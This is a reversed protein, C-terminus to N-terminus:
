GIAMLEDCDDCRVSLPKTARVSNGCCPCVYKISHAKTTKKQKKNLVRRSLSFKTFNEEAWAKLDDNLRTTSWGYKETKEVILGVSEAAKRYAENHYWGHRSTDKVGRQYNYLHVMEHLLTGAVEAIPRSLHEACLNIEHYGDKFNKRDATIEDTMTDAKWAKANTMWGYAGKTNDPSVTLVAQELKGSFLKENLERYMANIDHIIPELSATNTDKM